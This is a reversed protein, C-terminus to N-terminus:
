STMIKSSETVRSALARLKDTVLLPRLKDPPNSGDANYGALFMRARILEMLIDYCSKVFDNLNASGSLDGFFKTRTTNWAQATPVTNPM